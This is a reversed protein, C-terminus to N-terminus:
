RYVKVVASLGARLRNIEENDIEDIKIRVPVRQVVKTFNGTANDPPLLTFVAGTAASISEVTGRYNRHSIADVSIEVQAGLRIKEIDTEKFNATIWRGGSDVFGVLPVGAGAMQGVEASTRAIVGDSPARLKTSDMNLRAQAVQAEYAEYKAKLENMSALAQDYQQQSVAEKAYLEAIRRFNKEADRKKAEFSSLDGVHQKTANAYDREDIEVLIEDKKVAQGASVNVKVVYGAVKPALLVTHADVQADDTSVFRFHQYLFYGSVLLAVAGVVTLIRKRKDM